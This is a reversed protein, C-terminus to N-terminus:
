IIYVFTWGQSFHHIYKHQHKKKGNGTFLVYLLLLMPKKPVLSVQFAIWGSVIILAFIISGEM